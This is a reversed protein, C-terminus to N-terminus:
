KSLKENWLSQKHTRYIICIDSEPNRPSIFITLGPLLASKEWTFALHFGARRWTFVRLTSDRLFENTILSPFVFCILVMVTVKYKIFSISTLFFVIMLIKYLYSIYSIYIFMPNIYFKMRILLQILFRLCGIVSLKQLLKFCKM